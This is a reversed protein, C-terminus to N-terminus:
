EGLTMQHNKEGTRLGQDTGPSLRELILSKASLGDLERFLRQRSSESLQSMFDALGLDSAWLPRPPRVCYGAAKLHKCKFSLM